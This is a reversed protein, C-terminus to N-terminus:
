HTVIKVGLTDCCCDVFSKHEKKSYPGLLLTAERELEAVIMEDTMNPPRELGFQPRPISRKMKGFKVKVFLRSRWGFALPWIKATMYEEVLDHGGISEAVARFTVTCDKFEPL